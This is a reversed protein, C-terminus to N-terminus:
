KQITSSFCGTGRPGRCHEARGWGCAGGRGAGGRRDREVGYKARGVGDRGVQGWGVWEGAALQKSRSGRAQGYLFSFITFSIKQGDKVEVMWICDNLYAGTEVLTQKGLFGEPPALHIVDLTQCM